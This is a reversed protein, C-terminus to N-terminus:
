NAKGTKYGYAQIMLPMCLGGMNALCQVMIEKQMSLKFALSNEDTIGRKAWFRRLYLYRPFEKQLHGKFFLIAGGLAMRSGAVLYAVMVFKARLSNEQVDSLFPMDLKCLYTLITFLCSFKEYIYVLM